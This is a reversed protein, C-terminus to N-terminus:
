DADYGDFYEATLTEPDKCHLRAELLSLGTRITEKPRDDRYFRIIKYTECDKLLEEVDNMKKKLFYRDRIHTAHFYKDNLETLEKIYKERKTM